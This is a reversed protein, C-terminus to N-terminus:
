SAGGSGAVKGRPDILLYSFFESKLRLRAPLLPDRGHLINSGNFDRANMYSLDLDAKKDANIALIM